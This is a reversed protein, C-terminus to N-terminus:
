VLSTHLRCPFSDGELPFPIWSWSFSSSCSSSISWLFVHVWTMILLICSLIPIFSHTPCPIFNLRRLYSPHVVLALGLLLTGRAFHIFRHLLFSCVFWITLLTCSILFSLVQIVSPHVALAANLFSHARLMTNCFILTGFIFLNCLSKHVSSKLTTDSCEQNDWQYEKEIACM